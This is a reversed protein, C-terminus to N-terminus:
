ASLKRPFWPALAGILGGAITVWVGPGIQTGDSFTHIHISYAIVAATGLAGLSALTVGLRAWWRDRAGALRSATFALHAAIAVLGLWLAWRMVLAFGPGFVQLQPGLELGFKAGDQCGDPSCAEIRVPSFRVEVDTFVLRRWDLVLVGLAVCGASVASPVWRPWARWQM